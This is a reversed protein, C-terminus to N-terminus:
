QWYETSTGCVYYVNTSNIDPAGSHGDMAPSVLGPRDFVLIAGPNAESGIDYKGSSLLSRPMLAQLSTLAQEELESVVISYAVPAACQSAGKRCSILLENSKGRAMRVHLQKVKLPGIYARVNVLAHSQGDIRAIAEEPIPAAGSNFVLTYNPSSGELRLECDLMNKKTQLETATLDVFSSGARATKAPQEAYAGLPVQLFFILLSTGISKSM